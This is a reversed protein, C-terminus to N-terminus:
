RWERPTGGAAAQDRRCLSPMAQLVRVTPKVGGNEATLSDAIADLDAQSPTPVASRIVRAGDWMMAVILASPSM